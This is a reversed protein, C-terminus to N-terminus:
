KTLEEKNGPLQVVEKTQTVFGIASEISQENEDPLPKEKAFKVLDALTLIQKLTKRNDASLSAHRLAVFIEDTTQELANIRYRKELYERLVDSLESYYTKVEDQQWLKKNRLEYLKALAIDYAPKVPIIEKVPEEAKPRKRLYYFLYGGILIIALPIVIWLWHDKVWDVFTYNVAFPQKIDYIGKTTDVAVSLIQLTLPHTQFSDAKNKFTYAPIVYTGTDFSTITYKRNIIEINKDAQDFSTDDKSKVIQIKGAISDALVPFSLVTKAPFRASLHLVTQDGIPMSVKDLGADVQVSQANSKFSFCALIFILVLTYNFHQKSM